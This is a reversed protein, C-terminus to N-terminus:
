QYRGLTKIVRDARTKAATYTRDIAEFIRPFDTFELRETQELFPEYCDCSDDFSIWSTESLEWYNFEVEIRVKIILSLGGIEKTEGFSLEVFPFVQIACSNSLYQAKLGGFGSMRQRSLQNWFVPEEEQSPLAPWYILTM